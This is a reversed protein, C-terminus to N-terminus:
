RKAVGGPAVRPSSVGQERAERCSQPGHLDTLRSGPLPLSCSLGLADSLLSEIEEGVQEEEYRGRRLFRCWRGGLQQPWFVPLCGQIRRTRAVWMSGNGLGTLEVELIFGSDAERPERQWRQAWPVVREGQVAGSLQEGGGGAGQGLKWCVDSGVTRKGGGLPKRSRKSGFQWGEIAVLEGTVQCSRTVEGGDVTGASDRERQM